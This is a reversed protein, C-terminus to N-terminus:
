GLSDSNTKEILKQVLHASVSRNQNSLDNIEWHDMPFEFLNSQGSKNLVLGWNHTRISKLEGLGTTIIKEQGKERPYKWSREILGSPSKPNSNLLEDLDSGALLASHRLSFAAREPHCWILPVHIPDLWPPGGGHGIHKKEGLSIGMDSTFIVHTDSTQRPALFELIIGLKRDMSAIAASHTLLLSERLIHHHLLSPDKETPLASLWPSLAQEDTREADDNDPTPNSHPFHADTQQKTEESQFYADLDDQGPSWPPLSDTLEVVLVKAASKSLTAWASEMELHIKRSDNPLAPFLKFLGSKTEPPSQGLWITPTNLLSQGWRLPDTNEVLFHDFVMSQSALRDINPTLSWASGYCGLRSSQIGRALIVIYAM